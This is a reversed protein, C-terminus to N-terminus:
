SQDEKVLRAENNITEGEVTEETSERPTEVAEPPPSPVEEGGKEEPEQSPWRMERWGLLGTAIAAPLFALLAVTFGGGFELYDPYGLVTVLETLGLHYSIAGFLLVATAAAAISLRKMRNLVVLVVAVISIIIGVVTIPMAVITLGMVIGQGTPITWLTIVKPDKSWTKFVHVAETGDVDTMSVNIMGFLQFEGWDEQVSLDTSYTRSQGIETLDDQVEKEWALLKKVTGEDVRRFELYVRNVYLSSVNAWDILEVEIECPVDVGVVWWPITEARVTVNLRAFKEEPVTWPEISNTREKATGKLFGIREQYEGTGKIFTVNGWVTINFQPAEGSYEVTGQTFESELRFDQGGFSTDVNLEALPVLLGISALVIAVVFLITATLRIWGPPEASETTTNVGSFSSM